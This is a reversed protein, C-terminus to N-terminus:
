AVKWTRDGLTVVLNVSGGLASVYARITDIGSVEGREIKSVRAQSIGLTEAVETQTLGISKRIEALQHGRLYAEHRERARDRAAAREPETRSDARRAKAKVESWTSFKSSM